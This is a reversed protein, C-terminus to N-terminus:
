AAFRRRRQNMLSCRIDVNEDGQIHLTKEPAASAIDTFIASQATLIQVGFCNLREFFTIDIAPAAVDSNGGPSKASSLAFPAHDFQQIAVATHAPASDSMVSWNGLAPDALRQASQPPPASQPAPTLYVIDTKASCSAINAGGLQYEGLAAHVEQRLAVSAPRVQNPFRVIKAAADVFGNDSSQMILAM